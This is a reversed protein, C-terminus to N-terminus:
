QDSKQFSSVKSGNIKTLALWSESQIRFEPQLVKAELMSFATPLSSKKVRGEENIM